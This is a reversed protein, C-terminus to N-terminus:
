LEAATSRLTVVNAKGNMNTIIIKDGYFEQLKTKMHIRSYADAGSDKLYEKMLDVLYYITLQEDVNDKLYKIVKLFAQNAEEDQPRGIEKRKFSTKNQQFASPINKKTRFNISCSQHYIADAGHLDHVHLLRAQVSHSWADQREKWVDLITSKMGITKVNCIDHAKRKRDFKAPAACFLCHTKFQFNQEASRLIIKKVESVTNKQSDATQALAKKINQLKCYDRRCDQHVKEGPNVSVDDTRKSSAENIGAAGKQTLTVTPKGGVM